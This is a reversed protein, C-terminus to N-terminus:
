KIPADPFCCVGREMVFDYDLTYYPTEGPSDRRVFRGVLSRTVGFVVDSELHESDDAFVQTILTKFEPKSVMFHVHAPRMPHRRQAALLVGVAGSTPVPYGAPRVTRFSYRGEADTYIHGRLNMDPQHEDQNEYLGVPSAQWVDVKAGAVPRGDVDRVQGSVLMPAGPMDCRAISAGARCEPSADRWFPGLLAAATQGQMEPNNRLAVLTSVGLVDAALVVENHHDNTQQGIDTIFRLATNFEDETLDVERVLAHLHEVVAHMIQRLRPSSAGAMAAHVSATVSAEGDILSPTEV